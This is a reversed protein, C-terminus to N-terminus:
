QKRQIDPYFHNFSIYYIGKIGKLGRSNTQMQMFINSYAETQKFKNFQIHELKNSNAQIQM